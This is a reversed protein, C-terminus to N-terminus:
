RLYFYDSFVEVFGNKSTKPIFLSGSSIRGHKSFDCWYNDGNRNYRCSDIHPSEKYFKLIEEPTASSIYVFQRMMLSPKSSPIAENSTIKFLKLVPLEAGNIYGGNNAGGVDTNSVKLETGTSQGKCPQAQFTVKGGGSVCKNIGAFACELPIMIVMFLVIKYIKM